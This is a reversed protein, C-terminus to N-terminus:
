RFKREIFETQEEQFSKETISTWKFREMIWTFVIRANEAYSSTIEPISYTKSFPLNLIDCIYGSRLHRMLDFFILQRDKMGHLEISIECSPDLVGKAALRSVFLFIETLTYLTAIIGLYKGSPSPTRASFSSVNGPDIEYDEMCAFHHIFMGSQYLRWYEKSSGFDASSGIFDVGHEKHELDIHPYDWGRLFVVSTEVIDWSEKLSIIKKEDFHTPRVQVRWYGTSHIKKLLAEM